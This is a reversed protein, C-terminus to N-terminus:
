EPEIEKIKQRLWARKAVGAMSDVDKSLLRVNNRDPDTKAKLLKVFIRIFNLNNHKHAKHIEPHNGIYHKLKDIESFAEEYMELEYYTTLKGLSTDLYHVFNAPKVNELYRLAERFNNQAFEIKFRSINIEDERVEPPLHVSYNNVFDKVWNLKGLEIGIFVYDRFNNLPYVNESIDRLLGLSLKENYLEFLEKRFKLIGQNQRNVCYYILTMYIEQKMIDSLNERIGAFIKRAEFYDSENELDEFSKYVHYYLLATRYVIKDKNKTNETLESFNIKKLVEPVINYVYYKNLFDQQRFEIGFEFLQIFSLCTEYFTNEYYVPFFKEYKNRSILNRLYTTQLEVLDRFKETDNPTSDIRELAKKHRAEFFRHLKRQTLTKLLIKDREVEDVQLSKFILFEEGLKFLESFRNKLTQSSFTKGPYLREHLEKETVTRKNAKLIENLIPVYNRGTSYVPSAIFKRFEKVEADSFSRLLVILKNNTLDM